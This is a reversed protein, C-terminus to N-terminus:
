DAAPVRELIVLTRSIHRRGQYEHSDLAYDGSLRFIGWEGEAKGEQRLYRRASEPDPFAPAGPWAGWFAPGFVLIQRGAPDPIDAPLQGVTYLPAQIDHREFPTLADKLGLWLVLGALALISLLPLIRKM